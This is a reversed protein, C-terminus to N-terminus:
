FALFLPIVDFNLRVTFILNYRFSLILTLKLALTQKTNTGLNFFSVIPSARPFGDTIALKYRCTLNLNLTQTLTLTLSLTSM